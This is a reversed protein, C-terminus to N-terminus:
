GGRASSPQRSRGRTRSSRPRAAEPTGATRGLAGGPPWAAFPYASFADLRWAGGSVLRGPGRPGRLGRSSWGNSLASACAGRPTSWVAESRGLPRPATRGRSGPLRVGPAPWLGVAPWRAQSSAASPKPSLSGPPSLVQGAGARQNTGIAPTRCGNGDRVRGNLGGAAIISRELARSLLAARVKNELGGPGRFPGPPRKQEPARYLVLIYPRASKEAALRRATCYWYWYIHTRPTPWPLEEHTKPPTMPLFVSIQGSFHSFPLFFHQLKLGNAFNTIYKM